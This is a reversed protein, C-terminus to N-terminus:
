TGSTGPLVVRETQPAQSRENEHASCSALRCVSGTIDFVHGFLLTDPLVPQTACYAFYLWAFRWYAGDRVGNTGGMTQEFYLFASCIHSVKTTKGQPLFGGEYQPNAFFVMNNIDDCENLGNQRYYARLGRVLFANDGSVDPHLEYNDTRRLFDRIKQM